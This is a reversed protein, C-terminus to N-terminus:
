SLKVVTDLNTPRDPNLGKSLAREFAIMQGVPLYLVNQVAEQLGSEFRVESGAEAM